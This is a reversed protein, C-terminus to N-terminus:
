NFVTVFYLCCKASVKYWAQSLLRAGPDRWTKNFNNDDWLLWWWHPLDRYWHGSDLLCAWGKEVNGSHTDGGLHRHWTEVEPLNEKHVSRWVLAGLEGFHPVMQWWADPPTHMLYQLLASIVRGHGSQWLCSLMQLSWGWWYNFCWRSFINEFKINNLKNNTILFSVLNM